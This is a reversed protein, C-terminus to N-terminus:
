NYLISGGFIGKKLYEKFSKFEHLFRTLRKRKENLPLKKIEERLNENLQNGFGLRIEGGNFRLVSFKEKKNIDKRTKNYEGLLKELWVTKLIAENRWKAYEKSEGNKQAIDLLESYQENSLQKISRKKAQALYRGFIAPQDKFRIKPKKKLELVICPLLFTTKNALGDSLHPKLGNMAFFGAAFLISANSVTPKERSGIHEGLSEIHKIRSSDM